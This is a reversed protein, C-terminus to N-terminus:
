AVYKAKMKRLWKNVDDSLNFAIAPIWFLLTFLTLNLAMKLYPNADYNIFICAFLFAISFIFAKFFKGKFPQLGFKKYLLLWRFFNVVTMAIVSAIAAGTLMYSSIFFYNLVVALIALVVNFYMNYKYLPSTGIVAANVGTAMEILIGSGLILFLYQYPQYDEFKPHLQLVSDLLVWGTGLLYAALLLQNICSKTYVEDINKMNKEKWSDALIVQAIRLISTGPIMIFRAAFFFLTYVGMMELSIMKTLMLQDVYIVISGSAGILMGFAIYEQIKRTQKKEFLEKKPLTIKKTKVFAFLLVILGPICFSFAYLFVFQDFTMLMFGYTVIAILIFFRSLFTDLFTGIFTQYLMKMYGEVNHFLIRFFIMPFILLYFRQYLALDADDNILHHGFFYFIVFSISIGILSLFIGFMLFGFHGNQENRYKPFIQALITNYGLSFVTVFIGSISDLLSLLGFEAKGPVVIPLIMRTIGGLTAGAFNIITNRLAQRQIIGM